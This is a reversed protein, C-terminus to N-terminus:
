RKREKIDNNDQTRENVPPFRDQWSTQWPQVVPKGEADSVQFPTTGYPTYPTVVPRIVPPSLPEKDIRRRQPQYRTGSDPQTNEQGMPLLAGAVLMSCLSALLGKFMNSRTRAHANDITTRAEAEDFDPLTEPYKMGVFDKLALAEAEPSGSFRTLYRFESYAERAKKDRQKENLPEDTGEDLPMSLYHFRKFYQECIDPTISDRLIPYNECIFQNLRAARVAPEQPPALESSERQVFARLAGQIMKDFRQFDMNPQKDPM